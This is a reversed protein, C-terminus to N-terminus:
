NDNKILEAAKEAIGYTISMLHASFSIPPVSADVVRVNSTGYVKLDNGVVGGENRPLMSSTCSPHYETGANSRIWDEWEENSQVNKGPNEEFDILDKLPSQQSIERILKFGERLVTLDMKQSLYGADIAPSAFPNKSTIKVSGRSLPHQLAAQINIKGFMVNGLIELPSVNSPYIENAIANYTKRQGNKVQEPVNANNVISDISGQIRNIISDPNNFLNSMGVYSVAANVYSDKEANNTLHSPGVSGSNKPNFSMGASLHDQLNEGVGPLDVVVDIGHKNLLGSAGIGSLQLIQPTNISGGSIIVERNAHVTHRAEGSSAAYEVGTAKVNRRNSRDFHIKTVRHGTLIHLNKRQKSVPDIYANRSFSRTWDDKNLTSVSVYTGWNRGNYPDHNRDIGKASASEIFAGIPPHSIAPWTTHLPGNHGHSSSEYTIHEANAVSKKPPKFNESKKMSSLFSDWDWNNGGALDNWINQEKKSNRVYYLGNIASSGGLVKGRPWSARRGNMYNQPTTRWQWDYQTGVSSDYLNAAPVTFKEDDEYGSNGAEIVAVSKSSDESLRGALTLGALGGGIIVYDYSKNDLDWGNGTTQRKSLSHANTDNGFPQASTFTVTAILVAVSSLTLKM